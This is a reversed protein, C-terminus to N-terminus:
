AARWRKFPICHLQAPCPHLQHSGTCPPTRLKVGPAHPPMPPPFPSTCTLTPVPCEFQLSLRSLEEDVETVESLAFTKGQMLAGPPLTATGCQGDVLLVNAGLGTRHKVCFPLMCLVVPGYIAPPHVTGEKPDGTPMFLVEAGKERTETFARIYEQMDAETLTNEIARENYSFTGEAVWM